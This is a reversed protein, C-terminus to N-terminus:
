TDDSGSPYVHLHWLPTDPGRQVTSSPHRWSIISIKSTVYLWSTFFFFRISGHPGANPPLPLHSVSALTLVHTHSSPKSPMNQSILDYSGSWHGASSSNTHGVVVDVVVVCVDDVTVVTVVRVVTVVTVLVVCVVVVDEVVVVVTVVTLAGVGLHGSM